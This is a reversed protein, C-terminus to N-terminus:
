SKEAKGGEEQARETRGIGNGHRERHQHPKDLQTVHHYPGPRQNEFAPSKSRPATTTEFTPHHNRALPRPPISRRPRRFAAPHNEVLAVPQRTGHTTTLRRHPPGFPPPPQQVAPTTPPRM